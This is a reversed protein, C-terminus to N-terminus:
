VQRGGGAPGGGARSSAAASATATTAAAASWTGSGVFGRGDGPFQRGMRFRGFFSDNAIFFGNGFGFAIGGAIEAFRMKFFRDLSHRWLFKRMRVGPRNSFGGSFANRFNGRSRFRFALALALRFRFTLWFALALRFVLTLRFTRSAGFIAARLRLGPDLRGIKTRRFGRGDTLSHGVGRFNGLRELVGNILQVFNKFQDLQGLALFQSVLALNIFKAAREAANLGRALLLL